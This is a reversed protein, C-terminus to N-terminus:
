PLLDLGEGLQFLVVDELHEPFGSPPDLPLVPCRHEKTEVGAGKAGPHPFVAKAPL